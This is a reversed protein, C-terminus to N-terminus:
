CAETASSSYSWLLDLGHFVNMKAVLCRGPTRAAAAVNAVIQAMETPATCSFSSYVVLGHANSLANSVMGCARLGRNAAGVVGALMLTEARSFHVRQGFPDVLSIIVTPDAVVPFSASTTDVNQTIQGAAFTYSTPLSKGAADRAWPAKVTLTTGDPTLVQHDGGTAPTVKSGAPLMGHFVASSQGEELVALAAVGVATDQVLTRLSKGDKSTAPSVTVGHDKVERGVLDRGSSGTKAVAIAKAVDPTDAMASPTIVAVMAAVMAVAVAGRIRFRHSM